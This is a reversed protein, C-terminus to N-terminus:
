MLLFCFDTTNGTKVVELLKAVLEDINTSDVYKVCLDLTENMPSYRSVAM